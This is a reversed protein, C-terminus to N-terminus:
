CTSIIYESLTLRKNIGQKAIISAGTAQNEVNVEIEWLTLYDGSNTINANVGSLESFNVSAPIAKICTPVRVSVVYDVIDNQDIDVNILTPYDAPNLTAFHINIMQEIAMNAAAIAENRFQMNGVAKLNGGTLRFASVTLLTIVVLMILGVVLTAGREKATVEHTIM